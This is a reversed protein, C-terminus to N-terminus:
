GAPCTGAGAQATAADENLLRQREDASLCLSTTGRLAARLGEITTPWRWSNGDADVALIADGAPTWAADLVFADADIRVPVDGGKVPWIRAAGDEGWTLVEQGDPRLRAGLVLGDHQGLPSLPAGAVSTLLRGDELHVVLTGGDASAAVGRLKSGTIELDLLAGGGSRPVRLLRTEAGVIVSDATLDIDYAQGNVVTLGETAAASWLRVSTGDAVVLDGNNDLVLDAVGAAPVRRREAGTASDFMGVEGTRLVYALLTGDPSWAVRRPGRCSEECVLGPAGDPLSVAPEGTLRLSTGGGSEGLLLARKGDPAWVSDDFSGVAERTVGSVDGRGLVGGPLAVMVASGDTNVQVTLPAPDGPWRVTARAPAPDIWWWRSGSRAMFYEGDGTYFASTWAEAQTYVPRPAAKGRFPVYSLEKRCATAAELGAPHWAFVPADVTGPKACSVDASDRMGEGWGFIRMRGADGEGSLALGGGSRGDASWGVRVTGPEQAQGVIEHRSRWQWTFVGADGRASRAAAITTGDPSLVLDRVRGPPMEQIGFPDGLSGPRWAATCRDSLAGGRGCPYAFVADGAATGGILYPSDVDFSHSKKPNLVSFAHLGDAVSALLTRGQAAFALQQVSAGLAPTSQVEGGDVPWLHIMTDAAAVAVRGAECLLGTVPMAVRALDLPVRTVERPWVRLLGDPDVTAVSGDPCPAAREAAWSRVLVPSSLARVAEQAWGPAALPDKVELLLLAATTPATELWNRAMALRRAHEPSTHPGNAVALERAQSDDLVKYLAASGLGTLALVLALLVVRVAIGSSSLGAETARRVTSPGASPTAGATPQPAGTEDARRESTRSSPTGGSPPAPISPTSVTPGLGFPPPPLFSSTPLTPELGSPTPPPLAARLRRNAEASLLDTWDKLAADAQRAEDPTLGPVTTREGSRRRRNGLVTHLHAAAKQAQDTVKKMAVTLADPLRPDSVELTREEADGLSEEVLGTAVAADIVASFRNAVESDAPLITWDPVRSRYGAARHRPAAALVALLFGTMRGSPDQGPPLPGGLRRIASSLLGTASAGPSGLQRTARRQWLEDVMAQLLPLAGARGDLAEVIGNVLPEPMVMGARRVPVVLADRLNRGRLPELRHIRAPSIPTGSTPVHDLADLVAPLVASRVVLLVVLRLDPRTTAQLLDELGIGLGRGVITVADVVALVSRDDDADFWHEPQVADANDFWLARWRSADARYQCMLGARVLSSKGSKSAGHLVILRSRDSPATPLVLEDIANSLDRIDEDRAAFLGHDQERYAGQGPHSRRVFPRAHWPTDSNAHLQVLGAEDRMATRALAFAEQISHAEELIARYFTELFVGASTPGFVNRCVIVYPVGIRLLPSVIAQVEDGGLVTAPGTAVTLLVVRLHPVFPALCGALATGDAVGDLLRIGRPGAGSPGRPCLLQLVNIPSGSASLRTRLGDLTVGALEEFRVTPDDLADVAKRAALSHEAHPLGGGGPDAWGVLVRGGEEVPDNSIALSRSPSAREDDIAEYRLVVGPTRSLPLDDAQLPMVEWPLGYLSGSSARLHVHIPRRAYVAEQLATRARLLGGEYVWVAMLDILHAEAMDNGAENLLAGLEAQDADSWAFECAGCVDDWLRVRYRRRREGVVSRGSAEDEREIFIDIRLPETM